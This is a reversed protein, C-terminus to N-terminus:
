PYEASCSFNVRVLECCCCFVLKLGTSQVWSHFSSLYVQTPDAGTPRQWWLWLYAAPTLPVPLLSSSTYGFWHLLFLNGKTGCQSKLSHWFSIFKKSNPAHQPCAREIPRRSQKSEWPFLHLWMFSFKMEFIANLMKKRRSAKESVFEWTIMCRPQRFSRFNIRQSM